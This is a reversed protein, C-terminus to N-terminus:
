NVPRLTLQRMGPDAAEIQVRVPLGPRIRAMLQGPVARAPIMGEIPIGQLRVFVGFTQVGSVVGDFLAGRRRELHMLAMLETCEREAEEARQELESCAEAMGRPDDLTSRSGADLAELARHVILDPYRRIPSTFHLYSRLALGFHGLNDPSYVARQLSKLVAERVLPYSPTGRAASILGSLDRPEFARSAPLSMGLLSLEGRLRVTADRDPAGHVRFLVQLGLWSCHEAVARNAEVMFNEILRHSEDDPVPEFSSPWGSADFGIRFEEGGLDLAGRSERDRDLLRSLRTMELLAPAVGPIDAPEGGMIAFAQEYTLRARSRIVSATIRYGTRRGSPDYDLLVSRALRDEGPRLSCAGASLAEPLM